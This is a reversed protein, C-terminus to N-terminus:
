THSMSISKLVRQFLNLKIQFKGLRKSDNLIDDTKSYFNLIPRRTHEDLPEMDIRTFSLKKQFDFNSIFDVYHSQAGNASYQHEDSVQSGLDM